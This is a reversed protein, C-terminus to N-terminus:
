ADALAGRFERARLARLARQEIQRVRERSIGFVAGVQDFTMPADGDIGFRLKLVKADREPLTAICKHLLEHRIGTSVIDIVPAHQDDEILDGLVTDQEDGVPTHISVPDRDVDLYMQVKEPAFGTEAAIEEITPRRGSEAELERYLKRVTVVKEAAHVPIRILRSSDAICRSISQRIWWTAYTSFKYGKAYDFKKVARDLGINGEQILDMFPVGHGLYNKAVSVVLRLNARVFHRYAAEGDQVLQRYERALKADDVGADLQERALVGAEITRALEPEEEPLLLPIAAIGQLYDRVADDSVRADIAAPRRVAEAHPIQAAASAATKNM